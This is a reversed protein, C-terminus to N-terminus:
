SNCKLARKIFYSTLSIVRGDCECSYYILIADLIHHIILGITFLFVTASSLSLIICLAMFEATHFIHIVNEGLFPNSQHFKYAKILGFKRFKYMYWFYHDIDILVGGAIIILSFYGLFPFLAISVLSTIFFHSPVDM